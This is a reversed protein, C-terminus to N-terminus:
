KIKKLKVDPHITMINKFIKNRKLNRLIDSTYYSTIILLSKKDINVEKNKISIDIDLFQNGLKKSDSDLITKIKNKKIKYLYIAASCFGGAGFFIINQKSYKNVISQIRKKKNYYKKIFNKVLNMKVIKKKIKKPSLIFYINAGSEKILEINLNSKKVLENMSFKNFLHIHQHSFVEVLGNKLYFEGNPVELIIKSNKNMMKKIDDLFKKPEKIHELLHRAIIFDYNKNKFKRSNINFFEKDVKLNFKKAIEAGKSPDCGSVNKYGHKKLNYLIYGDYSGIEYFSNSMFIKNKKLYFKLFNLFNNDRSPVFEGLMASPYSYFYKYLKNIVKFNTNSILFVHNCFNCFSYKLDDFYTSYNKKKIIKKEKIKIPTTFYPFNKSILFNNIEQSSCCPCIIKKNM